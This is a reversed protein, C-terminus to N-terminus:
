KNIGILKSAEQQSVSKLEGREEANDWAAVKVRVKSPVFSEKTDRVLSEAPPPPNDLFAEYAELRRQSKRGLHAYWTRSFTLPSM